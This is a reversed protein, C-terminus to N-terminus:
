GAQPQSAPLSATNEASCACTLLPRSVNFTVTACSQQQIHAFLLLGGTVKITSSARQNPGRRARAEPRGAVHGGQSFVPLKTKSTVLRTPQSLAKM